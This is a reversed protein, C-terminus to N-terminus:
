GTQRAADLFPQREVELARHSGHAELGLVVQENLLGLQLVGQAPHHAFVDDSVQAPFVVVASKGSRAGKAFAPWNTPRQTGPSLLLASQIIRPVGTPGRWIFLTRTVTGPGSPGALMSMSGPSSGSRRRCIAWSAPAGTTAM